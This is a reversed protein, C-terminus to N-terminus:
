LLLTLEGYVSLHYHGGSRTLMEPKIVICLSPRYVATDQKWALVQKHGPHMVSLTWM